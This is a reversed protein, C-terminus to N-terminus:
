VAIPGSAGLREGNNNKAQVIRTNKATGDANWYWGLSPFLDTTCTRDGSQVDCSGAPLSTDDLTFTVAQQQPAPQALTIQVRIGDGDTLATIVESARNLITINAASDQQAPVFAQVSLLTLIIGIFFLKRM